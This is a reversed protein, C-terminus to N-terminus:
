TSLEKTRRLPWEGESDPLREEGKLVRYENYSVFWERHWAKQLEFLLEIPAGEVEPYRDTIEFAIRAAAEADSGAHHSRGPNVGYHACMAPLRRSGKRFRDCHRDLVLVDVAPGAWGLGALGGEEGLQRLGADIVTLDFSLNMGVLPLGDASAEILTAAIGFISAELKGGRERCEATSIGHVATAAEPIECGPDILAYRRRLPERLFDMWVLAFAIPPDAEPNVGCTELDFALSGHDEWTM